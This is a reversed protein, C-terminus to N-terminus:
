TSVLRKFQLIRRGFNVLLGLSLGTVKLANLTQAIHDEVIAKAAKVEVLVVDNVLLDPTYSGVITGDEDRVICSQQQGVNVGKKRLRNALANEYVKELFGYGFYQHTEFATQRVIGSLEEFLLRTM